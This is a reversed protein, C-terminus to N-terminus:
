RNTGVPQRPQRSELYQNYKQVFLNYYKVTEEFAEPNIQQYNQLLRGLYYLDDRVEILTAAYMQNNLRSYWGLNKLSNNVLVDYIERAKEIEGLEFYLQGISYVSRFDYPVNYDPLVELAYDLVEKIKETKGEELLSNGLMGFMSRFTRAMGMANADLYIGPEELNGYRYKHMLNEYLIDTDINTNAPVLRYAVGDQRFYPDLSLYQDSSVTIAFYIPRSWDKNNALMDLIMMEHKGLMEKRPEVINGESDRKEGLDISLQKKIQDYYEPKVIGSKVVAASDIPLYLISARVNDADRYGKDKYAQPLKKTRLDDSKIWELAASVEKPETYEELIVAREHKGQIYDTKEWSIPLPESEYAQRKMQDIYWDTQLYSLNCVRVDTRYEEVEQSYWLPFTDNDGM